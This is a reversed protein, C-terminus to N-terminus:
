LTHPANIPAASRTEDGHGQGKKLCTERRRRAPEQKQPRVTRRGVTPLRVSMSHVAIGILLRQSVVEAAQKGVAAPLNQDNIKYIKSMQSM